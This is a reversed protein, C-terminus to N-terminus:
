RLPPLPAKGWSEAPAGVPAPGSAGPVERAEGWTIWAEGDWRYLLPSVPNPLTDYMRRIGVAVIKDFVLDGPVWAVLVGRAPAAVVCDGIQAGGVRKRLADPHLLAAHDRGDGVATMWYPASFGEIKVPELRKVAEAASGRAAAELASAALGDARTYYPRASAEARTFCLRAKEAFPRCVLERAAEPRGQAGAYARFAAEVGEPELGPDVAPAAAFAALAVLLIM